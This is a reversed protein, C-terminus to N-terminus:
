FDIRVSRSHRHSQMAAEAIRLAQIGDNYGTLPKTKGDLIDALHSMEARYAEAYRDLFFNQLPDRRAGDEGWTEVTSSLVNGARLLGNACFAEIRQDYGYGSRRSNSIVCIRGSNTRLVTKATDVDGAEGIAADVMSAAASYVEVPEEGLLWRAMDFDHITMDKFMGGSVKVYDLPPPAPDHSVIHLTELPGMEGSRLRDHLKRFNPDFRRNFGLFFPTERRGLVAEASLAKGLDLDLPKECFAAKGAEISRLSFDLHTDTSSAIIVASVSTDALVQDLNAVQAGTAAALDDAAKASPDVVYRLDLRPNAKANAAHIRGIRGAGVIAIPHM